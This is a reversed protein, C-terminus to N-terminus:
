RLDSAVLPQETRRAIPPVDIIQQRLGTRWELLQGVAVVWQDTERDDPKGGTLCGFAPLVLQPWHKELSKYSLPFEEIKGLTALPPPLDGAPGLGM